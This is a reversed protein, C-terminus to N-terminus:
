GSHPCVGEYFKNSFFPPDLYILDVSESPLSALRFLNDDCYITRGELGSAPAYRGM